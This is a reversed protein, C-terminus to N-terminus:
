QTSDRMPGPTPAPAAAEHEAREEELKRKTILVRVRQQCTTARDSLSKWQTYDQTAKALLLFLDAAQLYDAIADGFRSEKGKSAGRSALQDAYSEIKQARSLQAAQGKHGPKAVSVRRHERRVGISMQTM